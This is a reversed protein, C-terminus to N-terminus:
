FQKEGAVGGGGGGGKGWRERGIAREGKDGRGWGEELRM